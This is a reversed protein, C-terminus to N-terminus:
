FITNKNMPKQGPSQSLLGIRNHTNQHGFYVLNSEIDLQIDLLSGVGVKHIDEMAETWTLLLTRAYVKNM